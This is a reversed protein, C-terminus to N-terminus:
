AEVTNGIKAIKRFVENNAILNEWTDFGVLRGRDLVMIRDCQRVTGLRHAIILIAKDGPLQDVASMVERETLNDLASTAEDFVILDAHHYLARAIGIRQRQGGSLRVGREGVPTDYGEPLEEEVFRQLQAIEAAARLATMDIDEPSVGLAINEAISADLLFISQPVYGVTQQWARLNDSTIVTGDVALQGTTPQLLGLIIDALTTKGAGSTGVIGIKDGVGVKFSIDRISAQEANPYNFNVAQLEFSDRLGMAAPPANALPRDNDVATLDGHVALVSAVSAEIAAISHFMKSLEPMMRQGAFAFVGIIPVIEKLADGSSLVHQDVLMLCLLIMGGFAVAHLAYVPMQSFVQIMMQSHAFVRTPKAYRAVYAVEHGSLKIDKIGGFIEHTTRYRQTNAVVRENGFRELYLRCGLYIAGYIGGLVAFVALAVVPDIWLVLIVIAIVSLLSVILEFIPQLFVLVVRDAEALVRMSMDGGHRNLFFVYPQRLYAVLLRCSISFVRMNTYRAVVYVKAIGVLSTLIIVLLSVIGLAVVFEFSSNFGLNDYFWSFAKVSQIKSPDSLITLFPMISGVMAASSLAAVAAIALVIWADRREKADLLDWCKKWYSLKM